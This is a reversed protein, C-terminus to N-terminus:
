IYEDFQTCSIKTILVCQIDKNISVKINSYV